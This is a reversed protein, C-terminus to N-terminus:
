GCACDGRLHRAITSAAVDRGDARFARVIQAPPINADEFAAEWEVREAATYESLIAQVKCTPGRSAAHQGVLEAIRGV